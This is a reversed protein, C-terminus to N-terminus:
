FYHYPACYAEMFLSNKLHRKFKANCDTQRISTSLQLQNWVQSSAVYFFARFGVSSSVRPVDYLGSDSVPFVADLLYTYSRLWLCCRAASHACSIRLVNVCWYGTWHRCHLQSMTGHNCTWSLGLPLTVAQLVRQLPAQASDSLGALASNCYGVRTLILTCALWKRADIDPIRSLKCGDLIFFCTSTVRAIHHHMSCHVTSYFAWTAFAVPRSLTWMDLVTQSAWRRCGSWIQVDVSGYWNSRKFIWNCGENRVFMRPHWYCLRGLM